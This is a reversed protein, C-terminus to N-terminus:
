SLIKFARLPQKGRLRVEAEKEIIPQVSGNKFPGKKAKITEHLCTVKMGKTKKPLLKLETYMFLILLSILPTPDM